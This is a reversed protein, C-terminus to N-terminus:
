KKYQNYQPKSHRYQVSIDMRRSAAEGSRLIFANNKSRMRRFGAEGSRLILANNKSRMHRFGAASSRLILCQKEVEYAPVRSRREEPYLSM